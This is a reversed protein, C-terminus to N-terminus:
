HTIGPQEANIREEMARIRSELDAFQTMSVLATLVGLAARVRVGPPIGADDMITALTDVARVGSAQLRSVTRELAARRADALVTKFTDSAAYRRASREPIGTVTAADRISGTEFAAVALRAAKEDQTGRVAM